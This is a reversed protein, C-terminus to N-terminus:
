SYVFILCELLIRENYLFNLGKGRVCLWIIVRYRYNGEIRVQYKYRRFAMNDRMLKVLNGEIMFM